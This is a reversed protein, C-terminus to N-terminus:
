WARRGWHPLQDSDAMVGDTTSTRTVTVAAIKKEQRQVLRMLRHRRRCDGDRSGAPAATSEIRGTGTAIRAPDPLDDHHAGSSNRRWAPEQM